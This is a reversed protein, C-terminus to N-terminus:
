AVQTSYELKLLFFYDFSVRQLTTVAPSRDIVRPFTLM